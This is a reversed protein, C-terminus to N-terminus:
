TSPEDQREDTAEPEPSSEETPEARHGGISALRVQQRKVRGLLEAASNEGATAADVSDKLEARRSVLREAIHSLEEDEM